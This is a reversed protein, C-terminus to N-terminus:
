RDKHILATKGKAMWKSINAEELCKSVELTLRDHISMFKEIWFEHIGDHRPTKWNSVKNYNNNNFKMSTTVRPKWQCCTEEATGSEELYELQDWCHQLRFPILGEESRWINGSEKGYKKQITGLAEIITIEKMNSLKEARQSTNILNKASEKM